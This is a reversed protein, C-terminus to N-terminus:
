SRIDWRSPSCTPRAACSPCGRPASRTSRSSPGPDTGMRDQPCDRTSVYWLRETRELRPRFHDLFVFPWGTRTDLAGGLFDEDRQPGVGPGAAGPDLVGGPLPRRGGEPLAAPPSDTRRPGPLPLPVVGRDGRRSGQPDAHQEVRGQGAAGGPRPRAPQERPSPGAAPGVAADRASGPGERGVALGPRDDGPRARGPDGSSDGASAKRGNADQGERDTRDRSRTQTAPAPQACRPEAARSPGDVGVFGLVARPRVSGWPFTPQDRGDTIWDPRRRTSKVFERSGPIIWDRNRLYYFNTYEVEFVPVPHSM